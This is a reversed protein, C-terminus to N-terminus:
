KQTLVKSYVERYHFSGETYYRGIGKYAKLMEHCARTRNVKIQKM